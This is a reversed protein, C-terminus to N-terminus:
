ARVNAHPAYETVSSWKVGARNLFERFASAAIPPGNDTVITQPCCFKELIDRRVFDMEVACTENPVEVPWVTLHEM